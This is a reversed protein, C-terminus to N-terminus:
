STMLSASTNEERDFKSCSTSCASLLIFVSSLSTTGMSRGEAFLSECTLFRWWVPAIDMSPLLDLSTTDSFLFQKQEIMSCKLLKVM